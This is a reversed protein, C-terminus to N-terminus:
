PVIIPGSYVEKGYGDAPPQLTFNDSGDDIISFEQYVKLSNEKPTFVWIATFNKNEDEQTLLAM